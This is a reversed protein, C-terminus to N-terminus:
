CNDWFRLAYLTYKHYKFFYATVISVCLLLKCREPAFAVGYYLPAPCFQRRYRKLDFNYNSGEQLPTARRVKDPPLPYLSYGMGKTGIAIPLPCTLRNLSGEVWPLPPLPHPSFDM